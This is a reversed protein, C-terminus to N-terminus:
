CLAWDGGGTGQFATTTCVVALATFFQGAFLSKSISSILSLVEPVLWSSGQLTDQEGEGQPILPFHVCNM